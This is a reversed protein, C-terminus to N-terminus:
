SRGQYGCGGESPNEHLRHDNHNEASEPEVLRDVHRDPRCNGGALGALVDVEYGSQLASRVLTQSPRVARHVSRVRAAWRVNDM